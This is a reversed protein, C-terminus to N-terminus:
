TVISQDGISKSQYVCTNLSSKDKFKRVEVITVFRKLEHRAKDSKGTFHMKDRFIVVHLHAL